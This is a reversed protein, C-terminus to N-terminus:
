PVNLSAPDSATPYIDRQLSALEKKTNPLLRESLRTAIKSAFVRATQTMTLIIGFLGTSFICLLLLMAGGLLVILFDNQQSVSVWIASIGMGAIAGAFAFCVVRVLTSRVSILRFTIETLLSVPAVLLGTFVLASAIIGLLAFVMGTVFGIALLVALIIAMIPPDASATVGSVLLMLVIATTVVGGLVAIVLWVVIPPIALTLVTAGFAFAYRSMQWVAEIVTRMVSAISVNM